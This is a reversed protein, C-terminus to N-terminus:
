ITKKMWILTNLISMGASIFIKEAKGKPYNVRIENIVRSKVYPILDLIMEEENIKPLALWILCFNQDTSRSYTCFGTDNNKEIVIHKLYKNKLFNQLANMLKPSFDDINFDFM